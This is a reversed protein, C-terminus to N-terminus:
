GIQDFPLKLQEPATLVAHPVGQESRFTTRLVEHRAVVAEISRQLVDRNLAGRIDVRIAVNYASSSPLLQNLFWLQEQAHSLALEGDRGARPIASQWKVPDTCTSSWLEHLGEALTSVTPHDFFLSAPVPTGLAAQLRSRLEMAILSDM